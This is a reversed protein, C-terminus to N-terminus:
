SYHLGVEMFFCWGEDACFYLNVGEDDAEWRQALFTGHKLAWYLQMVPSLQCFAYFTM